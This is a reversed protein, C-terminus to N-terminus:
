CREDSMRHWNPCNVEGIACIHDRSWDPCLQQPGAFIRHFRIVNLLTYAVQTFFFRASAISPFEVVRNHVFQAASIQLRAM